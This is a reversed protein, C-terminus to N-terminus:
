RPVLSHSTPNRDHGYDGQFNRTPNARQIWLGTSVCTPFLVSLYADDISPWDFRDDLFQEESAYYEQEYPGESCKRVLYRVVNGNLVQM